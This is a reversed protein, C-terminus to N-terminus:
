ALLRTAMRDTMTTLESVDELKGSWDELLPAYKKEARWLFARMEGDIEGTAPGSFVVALILHRGRELLVSKAGLELRRM